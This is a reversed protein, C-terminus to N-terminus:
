PKVGAPPSIGGAVKQKAISERTRVIKKELSELEESGEKKVEDGNVKLCDLSSQVTVLKGKENKTLYIFYTVGEELYADRGSIYSENGEKDTQGDDWVKIKERATIGKLGVMVVAEAFNAEQHVKTVKIVAIVSSGAIRQETTLPVFFAHASPAALVLCLLTFHVRLMKTVM